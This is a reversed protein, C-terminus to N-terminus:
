DFAGLFKIGFIVGDQIFGGQYSRVYDLRLFRFKGIGLNDLGVYFESYPKNGNTSLLNAGAVLNFNLKNILPVKGLLYGKFNHEVHGEFYSDDTSLAYYPLLNFSNLYTSTSGVRTQNGNFHQFDIFSLEDSDIFTGARLNYGFRGKNAIDFSQTLRAKLQSFNLSSDSAGFGGEYTLYLTPFESNFLNYKADPYSLYDQKFRIRGTINVKFIDHEAFAPTTFDDPLLPNNSTFEDDEETNFLPKRNEYAASAFLRIGNFIEDAYNIRVYTKDFLKIFNNDFVLTSVSNILESIPEAENFQSVGTGGSLALIPRSFNNFKYAISGNVRLRKDSFGYNFDSNIRLWRAGEEYNKLYSLGATSNWGQVTNFQTAFLPANFSLQWDKYSNRYTYGFFFNGLTFKNNKRDLSDLYPKSKRIVQISDKVQYDNSEEDTLPVPRIQNWFSDDKKNAENEFSLVERSFTSRDFEPNFDYNSYVATFRGNGKIGLIGFEVDFVQSILVWIKDKDSYSYNQKFDLTEIVPIQAQEGTLKFEVAYLAWDDEVIYLFGEGVRDKVRKPTVKIKNILHNRDDYFTGVLEYRYYNFAYDSIPSILNTNFDITNQYFSFNVDSANNFSFGNDNGSVKSAIIKEKFSNPRKYTIRSKTESLYIVGSRTSDLGGGFDGLDQGLIREPANKLRYIGRSYFDSTFQSIKNLNEERKAITNRIIQNAPNEEANVVVEQLSVSEEELEINLEFPLRDISVEKNITKFGLYQFVVTYNGTQEINLEYIGLENTTTGTYTNKLYINVYPLPNDGTDTVKGKIQSFGSYSFLSIVFLLFYNKLM